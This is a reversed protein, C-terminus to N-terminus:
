IASMGVNSVGVDSMGVSAGAGNAGLISRTEAICLRKWSFRVSSAFAMKYTEREGGHGGGRM